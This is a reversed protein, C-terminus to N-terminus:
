RCTSLYSLYLRAQIAITSGDGVCPPVLDKITSACGGAAFVGEINTTGFEDVVVCGTRHTKIGAKRLVSVFPKVSAVVFIINTELKKTSGDKINRLVLSKSPPNGEIEEGAFGEILDIGISKLKKRVQEDISIRNSHNVLRVNAATKTLLTAEEVAEGVDGVVIVDKGRFFQEGCEASYAVGGGLWTEWKMGLSKMGSGSALVLAKAAYIGRETKVTKDTNQLSLDVVEESTHLESGSNIAQRTMREMLEKGSIGDPFGPYNKLDSARAANGGAENKAELILTNLGFLALQIGASLGTPGAGIVIVDYM